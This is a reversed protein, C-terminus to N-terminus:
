QFAFNKFSLSNVTSNWLFFTPMLPLHHTKILLLHKSAHIVNRRNIFYMRLISNLFLSLTFESWQVSMKLILQLRFYYYPRSVERTAWHSLNWAGLAPPGLNLGQSPVQDWLGFSLTGLSCHHDFIRYAM